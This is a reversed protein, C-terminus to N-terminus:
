IDRWWIALYLNAALNAFLGASFIPAFREPFFLHVGGLYHITAEYLKTGSGATNDYLTLLPAGSTSTVSIAMLQGPGTRLLTSTNVVQYHDAM